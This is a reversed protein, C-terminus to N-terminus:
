GVTSAIKKSEQLIESLPINVETIFHGALKARLDAPLSKAVKKFVEAHGGIIVFNIDHNKIFKIVAETALDIHRKLLVENHRFNTSAESIVGDRGTANIKQPVYGVYEHYDTIEGQEVTFMRAKERDVLLVLYETYKDLAQLIPDINPSKDISLNVPMLFEFDVTEWLNQGASFLVMSRSASPIYDELYAEIRTIDEEFLARQEKDLHQHLLSHFQTTLLKGSPAQVTDMGLYVSLIQFPSDNYTQLKKVLSPEIM